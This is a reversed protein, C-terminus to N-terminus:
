EANIKRSISALLRSGLDLTRTGSGLRTGSPFESWSWATARSEKVYSVEAVECQSNSCGKQRDSALDMVVQDGGEGGGEGVAHGGQLSLRDGDGGQLSPPVADDGVWERLLCLCAPLHIKVVDPCAYIYRPSTAFPSSKEKARVLRSLIQKIAKQFKIRRRFARFAEMKELIFSSTCPHNNGKEFHLRVHAVEDVGLCPYIASVVHPCPYISSFIFFSSLGLSTTGTFPPPVVGTPMWLFPRRRSTPPSKEAERICHPTM